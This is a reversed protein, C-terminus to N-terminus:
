FLARLQVSVPIVGYYENKGSLPIGTEVRSVDSGIRSMRTSVRVEVSESARFIVSPALSLLNSDSNDVNQLDGNADEVQNEGASYYLVAAGLAIQPTLWFHAGADVYLVDGLDYDIDDSTHKLRLVYGVQGDVQANANFVIRAMGFVGVDTNGSGVALEADEINSDDLDEHKGTPLKVYGGGGVALDGLPLEVAAHAHVDGIGSGRQDIESSVGPLPEFDGKFSNLVFPVGVGLEFGDILGYAVGLEFVLSSSHMGDGLFIDDYSQKDGDEDYVGPASGFSPVLLSVEIDGQQALQRATPESTVPETQAFAPTAVIAVLAAIGMASTASKM